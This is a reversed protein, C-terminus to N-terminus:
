PTYIAMQWDILRDHVDYLCITYVGSSLNGPSWSIEKTDNRLEIIKVESGTSSYICIKGKESFDHRISFTKGSPNPYIHISGNEKEKDNAPLGVPINWVALTYEGPMLEPVILQGINWNGIHEFDISQWDESCDKRYLIVISDEESLILTSDLDGTRSYLFKGTAQFNSPLIADIRWHRYDSLRLGDVPTKLSDPPVWNHTVQVFASDSIEEVQMNFFTKTFTYSGTGYIIKYNDTTADFMKEEPDVFAVSPIFPFNKESTGTAGDFHITDTYQNWNEDMFTVEMINGDGTFAPGKRKQRAHVMVSYDDGSSSAVMSDVSYHPRGSNLVWNEFFGSMDIGTFNSMCDQMDYSSASNWAFEQLYDKVAEFFLSDGLYFRLAQTITAGKDYAAIGYTHNQPIQNLPFYSGDGSPRHCSKLVLYHTNRMDTKFQELDDYLVLAYYYQFFTAWGENLWMEEASSCTVMDGVWMHALEHAVLWEYSTGLATYWM